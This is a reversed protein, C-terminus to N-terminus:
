DLCVVADQVSMPPMDFQKRKVVRMDVRKAPDEFDEADAGAVANAAANMAAIEAETDEEFPSEAQELDFRALTDIATHTGAGPLRGTHPFPHPSVSLRWMHM